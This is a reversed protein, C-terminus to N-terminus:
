PVEVKVAEQQNPSKDSLWPPKQIAESDRLLVSSESM